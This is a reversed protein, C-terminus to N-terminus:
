CGSTWISEVALWDALWSGLSSLTGITQLFNTSPFKSPLHMWSWQDSETGQVCDQWSIVTSSNQTTYVTFVHM